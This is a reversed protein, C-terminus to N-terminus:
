LEHCSIVDGMCMQDYWLKGDCSIVRVRNNENYQTDRLITGYRILYKHLKEKDINM